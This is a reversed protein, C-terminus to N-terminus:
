PQAEWDSCTNWSRVDKEKKRCKPHYPEGGYKEAVEPTHMVHKCDACSKGFSFDTDLGKESAPCVILIDEKRRHKGHKAKQLAVVLECLEDETLTVLVTQQTSADAYGQSAYHVFEVNWEGSCRKTYTRIHKV